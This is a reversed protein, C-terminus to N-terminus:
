AAHNTSGDTVFAVISTEGASDNGSALGIWANQDPIQGVFNEAMHGTTTGTAVPTETTVPTTTDTATPTDSPTHALSFERSERGPNSLVSPISISYLLQITNNTLSIQRHLRNIQM